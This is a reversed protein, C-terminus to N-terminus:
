LDGLRAGDVPNQLWIAIDQGLAKVDRGLIDCTGKFAAFAGGGSIRMGQFSAKTKGDALLSGRVMVSKSGSFAGGGPAHINTIEVKLYKGKAPASDATKIQDFVGGAYQQVFHALKSELHCEDRIAQRANSTAAYSFKLPMYLTEGASAAVSAAMLGAAALGTALIKLHTGM